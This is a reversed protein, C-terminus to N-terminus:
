RTTARADRELLQMYGEVRDTVAPIAVEPWLVIDSDPVTRTENRYFNLTPQFQEPLWKQDQSLGGQVITARVPEGFPETWDVSKLAAGVLRRHWHM